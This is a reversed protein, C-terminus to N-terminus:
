EQKITSGEVQFKKKYKKINIFHYISKKETFIYGYQNVIQMM